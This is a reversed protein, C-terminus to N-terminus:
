GLRKNRLKKLYNKKFDRLTGFFIKETRGIENKEYKIAALEIECIFDAVQQLRFDVPSCDKYVVAQKNLAYEFAAHLTDTVLDQGDDYYIKVEDYSQLFELKDFLFFMLDRKMKILMDDDSKFQSKRYAFLQYSFPCKWAFASFCTLYRMRERPSMDKYDGNARMLSNMHLPIDGMGRQTLTEQYRGIHGYIDDSQDHLVLALLYYKADDGRSGSEDVFVSLEKM